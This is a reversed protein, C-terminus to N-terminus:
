GHPTVGIRQWAPQIVMCPFAMGPIAMGPIAM